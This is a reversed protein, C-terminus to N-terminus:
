PNLGIVRVGSAKWGEDTRTMVIELRQRNTVPEGDPPTTLIDASVLVTATGGALDLTAVASDLPRAETSRRAQQITEVFAARSRTLEALLPGTAVEEWRDIGEEATDPSLTNLVAAANEADLRVADRARAVGADESGAALALAVGFGATLPAPADRTLFRHAGTVDLDLAVPRAERLARVLEPLVQAARGLEALLVDQAGAILGDAGGGWVDAAELQLSPDETSQLAFQVQWRTGDGTQDLVDPGPDAPDHLTDVETLRFLATGAGPQERGVDDWATLAERLAALGKGSATVEPAPRPAVHRGDPHTISM